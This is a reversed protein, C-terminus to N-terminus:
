LCFMGKTVTVFVNDWSTLNHQDTVTLNFEYVTPSKGRVRLQTVNTRVEHPSEIVIDGGTPRCLLLQDYVCQVIHVCVFRSYCLVCLSADSPCMSRLVLSFINQYKGFM